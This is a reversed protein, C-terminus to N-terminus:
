TKMRRAQGYLWLGAAALGLLGGFLLGIGRWSGRSSARMAGLTVATLGVHRGVAWDSFQTVGARM